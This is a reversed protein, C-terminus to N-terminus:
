FFFKLDIHNIDWHWFVPTFKVILKKRGGIIIRKEADTPVPDPSIFLPKEM